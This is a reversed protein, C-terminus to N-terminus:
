GAYALGTLPGRDGASFTTVALTSPNIRAITSTSSLLVWISGGGAVVETAGYMADLTAVSAGGPTLVAVRDDGAAFIRGTGPEVALKGAHSFPLQVVLEGSPGVSRTAAPPTGAPAAGAAPATGALAAVVVMAATVARRRRHEFPGM